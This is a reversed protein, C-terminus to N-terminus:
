TLRIPLRQRNGTSWNFAGCRVALTYVMAPTFVMSVDMVDPNDGLMHAQKWTLEMYTAPENGLRPDGGNGFCNLGV